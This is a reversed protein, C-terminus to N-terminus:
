DLRWLDVRTAGALRVAAVVEPAGDGDGDGVAIGAVGGNFTKRYLGKKEDGGLTIVKVADPDGPAGAGSVIAEPKGDRDVDAIEFASGYDKLEYKAVPLCKAAGKACREVDVELKTGALQAHVQIPAGMADVLEACRVGYIPQAPDGFHNRGPMRALRQHACVLGAAGGPQAVIKGGQWSVRLELDFASSSAVAEGAAFVLTGVPDRSAPVAPSGGFAVRGLETVRKNAIGIAVVEKTTVAYLEAKGDHDLDAAGMAVLPAGLDLSGLRVAKWALKIPVPPMLAPERKAIVTDVGHRAEAALRAFFDDSGGAHAPVAVLGIVGLAILGRVM